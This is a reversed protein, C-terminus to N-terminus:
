DQSGSDSGSGTGTRTGTASGSAPDPGTPSGTAPDPGTAAGPAPRRWRMKVVFHAETATRAVVVGAEANFKIGFEIEHEDPAFARLTGLVSRLAPGTSALAATLRNGADAIGSADRSIRELGPSDEEVEVVLSEGDPGTFRVLESM